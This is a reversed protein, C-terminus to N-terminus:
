AQWLSVMNANRRQVDLHERARRHGNLWSGDVFIGTVHRRIGSIRRKAVTGTAPNAMFWGHQRRHYLSSSLWRVGFRWVSRVSSICACWRAQGAAAAGRCSDDWRLRARLTLVNRAQLLYFARRPAAAAAPLHAAHACTRAHAPLPLLYLTPFRVSGAAPLARLLCAYLAFTPLLATRLLASSYRLLTCARLAPLLTSAPLGTPAFFRQM